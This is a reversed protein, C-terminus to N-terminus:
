KVENFYTRLKDVARRISEDVSTFHVGEDSAIKRLSVGVFFHRVFREKQKVTLRGCRFLKDVALKVRRRDDSMIYSDDLSPAPHAIADELGTMSFTKNGQATELRAQELYIEDSVAKLAMFDAETKGPNDRLFDELSIELTRDSFQYVIGESFKNLAYDSKRYNKM